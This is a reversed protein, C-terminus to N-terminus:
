LYDLYRKFAFNNLEEEFGSLLDSESAAIPAWIQIIYNGDSHASSMSLFKLDGNVYFEAM